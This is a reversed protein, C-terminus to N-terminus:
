SSSSNQASPRVGVRWRQEDVHDLYPRQGRLTRVIDQLAILSDSAGGLLMKLREFGVSVCQASRNIVQLDFSVHLM